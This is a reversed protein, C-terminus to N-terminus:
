GVVTLEGVMGLTFHPPTDGELPGQANAVDDVTTGQPFTCLYIYRGPETLTGDGVVPGPQDTSGPFAITVLPPEEAFLAGLEEEPLAILEEVSRTESEPILVAVFEHPEGGEETTLSITSGAAITDPVGEFEYDRAIVDVTTVEPAEATTTTTDATGATDDDSGCAASVLALSVLCARAITWSRQM